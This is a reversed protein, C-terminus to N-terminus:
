PSAMPGAPAMARRAGAIARAVAVAAVRGASATDRPTPAAVSVAPATHGEAPAAPAALLRGLEAQFAAVVAAADRPAVGELVLREIHLRIPPRSM